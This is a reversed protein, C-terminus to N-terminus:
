FEKLWTEWIDWSDMVSRYLAEAAPEYGTAFVRTCGLRRLRKFGEVLVARALGRRQHEVATGVLVCVASRTFDDYYITAFAAVDGQPTVAVIDLDRRYLPTSQINQFWSWDGDYAENPEDAHFARWSAWSRAPHEDREGMSRITYGPATSPALIPSDLDRRCKSSTGSLKVFGRQSLVAHRMHDDSDAPFYLVRKGSDNRIALREEAFALMDNELEPTRFHPHVHMRIEGSGLSNVFAATTGDVTEWLSAAKEVSECVHCNLIFHWRWYDLRAVHWSHERRANLVFVERLFNRVRWYDDEAQCPRQIFKMM